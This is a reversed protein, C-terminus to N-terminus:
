DPTSPALYPKSIASIKLENDPPLKNRSAGQPLEFEVDVKIMDCRPLSYRRPPIRQLGGDINFVKLLDARSMGVHISYAEDMRHRLWDFYRAEEQGQERTLIRPPTQAPGLALCAAALIIAATFAIYPRM